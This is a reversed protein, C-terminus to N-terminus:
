LYFEDKTDAMCQCQPSSVIAGDFCSYQVLPLHGMAM